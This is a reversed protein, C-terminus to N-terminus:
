GLLFWAGTAAALILVSVCVSSMVRVVFGEKRQIALQISFTLIIAGALVVPIWTLFLDRPLLTSVLVAAITVALWVAVISM